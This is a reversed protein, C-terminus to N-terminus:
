GGAYHSDLGFLRGFIRMVIRLLKVADGDGVEFALNRGEFNNGPQDVAGAKIM